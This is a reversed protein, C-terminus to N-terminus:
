IYRPTVNTGAPTRMMGRGTIKVLGKAALSKIIPNTPSYDGLGYRRFEDRRYGSKMGLAYLAKKEDDTVDVVPEKPMYTDFDTPHLYLWGFPKNSYGKYVAVGQQMPRPKQDDDVENRNFPNAGGWSGQASDLTRGSTIDFTVYYGQTGKGGAMFPNWTMTAEVSINPSRHGGAKLGQQLGRPLDRVSVETGATRLLPVLVERLEPKQHALSAIRQRLDSM